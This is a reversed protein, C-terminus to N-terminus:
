LKVVNGATYIVITQICDNSLDNTLLKNLLKYLQNYRKITDYICKLCLDHHSYRKNKEKFEKKCQFMWYFDGQRCLCIDCYYYYYVGYERQPILKIQDNFHDNENKSLLCKMKYGKNTKDKLYLFNIVNLSVCKAMSIFDIHLNYFNTKYKEKIKLVYKTYFIDNLLEYLNIVDNKNKINMRNGILLTNEVEKQDTLDIYCHATISHINKKTIEYEKGNRYHSIKYIICEDNDNIDMITGLTWKDTEPKIFRIWDNIKFTEEKMLSAINVNIVKSWSFWENKEIAEDTSTLRLSINYDYLDTDFRINVFNGVHRRIYKCDFIFSKWEIEEEKKYELKYYMLQRIMGSMIGDLELRLLGNYMGHPEIQIPFDSKSM